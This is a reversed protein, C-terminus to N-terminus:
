ESSDNEACYSEDSLEKRYQSPTKGTHKKFQINLNSKDLGVKIAIFGVTLETKELLHKAHEVRVKTLFSHITDNTVSAFVSKLKCKNITFKKSLYEYGHNECYNKELFAKIQMAKELDENKLLM